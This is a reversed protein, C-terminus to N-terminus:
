KEIMCLDKDLIFVKETHYKTEDHSLLLLHIAEYQCFQIMEKMEEKTFYDQMNVCVLCTNRQLFSIHYLYSLFNQFLTNEEEIAFKLSKLLSSINWDEKIMIPINQQVANELIYQSLETLLMSSREYHEEDLLVNQLDYIAKQVIKKDQWDLHFIDLIVKVHCEENNNKIILNSNEGNELLIFSKMLETMTQPNEITISLVYDETELPYELLNSVIRM